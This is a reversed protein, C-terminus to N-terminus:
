LIRGVRGVDTVLGVSFMVGRGVHRTERDSRRSSRESAARPERRRPERLVRRAARRKTEEMEPACFIGEGRSLNGAAPTVPTRPERETGQCDASGDPPTPTPTTKNSFTPSLLQHNLQNSPQIINSTSLNLGRLSLFFLIMFIAFHLSIQGRSNNSALYKSTTQTKQVDDRIALSDNRWQRSNRLPPTWM